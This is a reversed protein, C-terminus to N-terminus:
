GVERPVKTGIPVRLLCHQVIMGEKQKLIRILFNLTYAQQDLLMSQVQLQDMGTSPAGLLALEVSQDGFICPQEVIPLREESLSGASVHISYAFSM